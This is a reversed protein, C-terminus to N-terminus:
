LYISQVFICVFSSVRLVCTVRTGCAQERADRSFTRECTDKATAHTRAIAIFTKESQLEKEHAHVCTVRMRILEIVCGCVGVCVCACVRESVWNLYRVTALQPTENYNRKPCKACMNTCRVGYVKCVHKPTHTHTQTHSCIVGLEDSLRWASPSSECTVQIVYM